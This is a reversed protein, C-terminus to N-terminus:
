NGLMDDWGGPVCVQRFFACDYWDNDSVIERRTVTFDQGLHAMMWAARPQDRVDGTNFYRDWTGNDNRSRIALPSPTFAFSRSFNPQTGRESWLVQLAITACAYM